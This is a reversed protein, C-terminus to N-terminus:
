LISLFPTIFLRPMRLRVTSPFEGCIFDPLFEREHNPMIILRNQVIEFFANEWFAAVYKSKYFVQFM